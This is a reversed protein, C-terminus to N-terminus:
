IWKVWLIAERLESLEIMRYHSTGKIDQINAVNVVFRGQLHSIVWDEQDTENDPEKPLASNDEDILNQMYAKKDKQNQIVVYLIIAIVVM